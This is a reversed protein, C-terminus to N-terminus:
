NLAVAETVAAQEQYYMDEYEIPPIDGIPGLLRRNNFWEVWSATAFEVDELGIWPGNLHIEETKYLGIMTEAMANDYSDGVSGVSPDIGAEALRETYRISLYQCGRDSHHILDNTDSRAHLAQELADLALDTRLSNSVRWGVIKRSFVDVVFAAYVHGQRTWVYTLDAVWLQNPRDAVFQRNVRDLPRDATLDPITTKFQRGRRVGSIGLDRMLREVTCRAVPQGERHSQRWIKYAGYARRNELWIRRIEPRLEDDRKARASRLEPNARRAAHEYFTSPAIPLMECIPEVGYEDRHDEIFSVMM